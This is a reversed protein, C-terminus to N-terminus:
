ESVEIGDVINDMGNVEVVVDIEGDISRLEVKGIVLGALVGFIWEWEVVQVVMEYGWCYFVEILKCNQHISFSEGSIM